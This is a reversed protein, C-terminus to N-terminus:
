WEVRELTRRAAANVYGVDQVGVEAIVRDLAGTIAESAYQAVYDRVARSYLESRSTGLKRALADAEAFLADPISIATKMGM